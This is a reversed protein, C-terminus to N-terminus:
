FAESIQDAVSVAVGQGQVNSVRQPAISILEFFEALSLDKFWGPITQSSYFESRVRRLGVIGWQM